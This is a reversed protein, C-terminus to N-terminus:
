QILRMQCALFSSATPVNLLRDLTVCCYLSLFVPNARLCDLQLIRKKIIGCVQEEIELDILLALGVLM